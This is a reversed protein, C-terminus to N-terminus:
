KVPVGYIARFLKKYLLYITGVLLLVHATDLDEPARLLERSDLQEVRPVRHLEPVYEGLM